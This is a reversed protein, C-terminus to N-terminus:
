KRFVLGKVSPSIKGWIAKVVTVIIEAAVAVLISVVLYILLTKEPSLEPAVTNILFAVYRHNLYLVLSFRGLLSCIKMPLINQVGTLGSLMIFCIFFTVIVAIYDFRNKGEFQMIVLLLGILGLEGLWLLAKFPKTLTINSAQLRDIMAGIFCGLCLGAIARMIGYNLYGSWGLSNLTGKEQSSIAYIIVPIVLSGINVFWDKHKLLVPFIIAMAVIMASLYWTPGNYITGFDVGTNHLLLVENISLVSGKLFDIISQDKEIFFSFQRVIFAAIFSFVFYPYFSKIKNILFDATSKGLRTVDFKRSSKVMLFGSIIFFFEVGTFGYPLITIGATSIATLNKTHYLVIIISFIFKLLDIEPNIKRKSM